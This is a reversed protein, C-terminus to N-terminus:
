ACCLFGDITAVSPLSTVPPGTTASRAAIGCRRTAPAVPVPLGQRLLLPPAANQDTSIVQSFFFPLNKYLQGGGKGPDLFPLSQTAKQLAHGLRELRRELHLLEGAISWRRM